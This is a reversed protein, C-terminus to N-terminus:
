NPNPYSSDQVPFKSAFSRRNTELRDVKARSNVRIGKFKVCKERNDFLLSNKTSYRYNKNLINAINFANQNIRPGIIPSRDAENLSYRLADNSFERFEIQTGLIENEPNKNSKKEM